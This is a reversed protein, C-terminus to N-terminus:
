KPNQLDDLDTCRFDKEIVVPLKTVYKERAEESWQVRKEFTFQRKFLYREKSLTVFSDQKERVYKKEHPNEAPLINLNQTQSM